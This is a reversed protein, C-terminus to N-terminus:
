LRSMEKWLGFAAMGKRWVLASVKRGVPGCILFAAFDVQAGATTRTRNVPAMRLRNEKPSLIELGGRTLIKEKRKRFALAICHFDFFPPPHSFLSFFFISLFYLLRYIPAELGITQKKKTRKKRKVEELTTPLHQRPIM